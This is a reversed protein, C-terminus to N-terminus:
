ILWGGGEKDSIFDEIVTQIEQALEKKWKTTMGPDIGKPMVDDLFSEALDYCSSDYGM